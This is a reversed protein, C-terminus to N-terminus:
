LSEKRGCGSDNRRRACDMRLASEFKAKDRVYSAIPMTDHGLSFVRERGAGTMRRTEIIGRAMIATLGKKGKAPTRRAALANQPHGRLM